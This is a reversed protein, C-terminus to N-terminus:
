VELVKVLNTTGPTALPLGATIVIRDGPRAMGTKLVQRRSEEILADTSAMPPALHPVVGWVLCLSRVTDVRTSLALVPVQPRTAAVLRATSGGTTPIVIARAGILHATDRAAWAIAQPVSVPPTQERTLPARYNWLDDAREAIEAITRVVDVPRAGSATEESLMVADTGDLIANAVDTVEARTPRPNEVMSLLMQTATIVPKAARNARRILEKQLGPVAVLDTEIGLDGRAVMLGDFADLITDIRAIAQQKEIKALLPVCRGQEEMIARPAAAHEPARVFSLAVWDVGLQLGMRLDEADKETMAPLHDGGRPLNVGKRSTVVGDSLVRVAVRSRTKHLVELGILGDVMSFRDGPELEDALPPYLVPLLTGQGEIPETTLEITDGARLAVPKPLVGLRIKVGSLDQLIAIQVGKAHALRRITEIVQTHEERTGHSMNLRAVDMGADIMQALVAADRSSPGITCVIKARRM